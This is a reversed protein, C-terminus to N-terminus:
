KGKVKVLFLQRTTSDLKYSYDQASYKFDRAFYFGRGWM